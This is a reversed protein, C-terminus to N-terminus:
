EKEIKVNQSRTTPRNSTASQMVSTLDDEKKVHDNLDYEYKERHEEAMDKYQVNEQVEKLVVGFIRASEAKIENEPGKTVKIKKGNQDLDGSYKKGGAWNAYRRSRTIGMQIFKRTMDMGIFDEKDLYEFFKAKLDQSSQSAIDPTRFRWLPLIESKYPEVSLVGQEGLGIRYLQPNDRLNLNKYDLDYDFVAAKRKKVKSAAKPMCFGFYRSTLMAIAQQIILMPGSKRDYIYFYPKRYDYTEM